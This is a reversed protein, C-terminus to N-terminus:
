SHAVGTVLFFLKDAVRALLYAKGVGIDLVLEKLDRANAPSISLLSLGLLPPM